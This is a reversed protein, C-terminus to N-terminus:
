KRKKRAEKAKTMEDKCSQSMEEKHEKMCKMMRGRGKKVDGCFKEADEHCAEHIDKMAAKMKEQQTKCEASLKDKNEMMCKRMHGEGPEVGACLTEMDQKCANESSANATLGFTLILAGLAMWTKM